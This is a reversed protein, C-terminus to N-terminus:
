VEKVIAFYCEQAAKQDGYSIHIDTGNPVEMSLDCYIGQSTILEIDVIGFRLQITIPCICNFIGGHLCHRLYIGSVLKVM